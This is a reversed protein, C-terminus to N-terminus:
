RYLRFLRKVSEPFWKKGRSTNLGYSNLKEAISSLNVGQEHLDQAIHFAQKNNPNELAARKRSEVSRRRAYDNLNQPNGLKFGQRKKAALAAKTRASIKEAEDQALTAYIGFQVLDMNPKDCIFLDITERIEFLQRANRGLRDLKAVVLTCNHTQCFRIAAQLERRASKRGSEVEVFEKIINRKGVMNKATYRQDDLGLGSIGQEKTSVRFYAVFKEIKM